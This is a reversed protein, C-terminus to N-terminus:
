RVIVSMECALLSFTYWALFTQSLLFVCYSYLIAFIIMLKFLYKYVGYLFVLVEIELLLPTDQIVYIQFSNFIGSFLKWLSLFM